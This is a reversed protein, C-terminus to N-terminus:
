VVEFVRTFFGLLGAAGGFAAALFGVVVFDVELVLRLLGVAGLAPGLVRPPFGDVAELGGLGRM